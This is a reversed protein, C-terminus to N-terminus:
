TLNLSCFLLVHIFSPCLSLSVSVCHCVFARFLQIFVSAWQGPGKRKIEVCQRESIRLIGQVSVCAKIEGCSIFLFVQIFYHYICINFGVPALWVYLTYKSILVVFSRCICFEQCRREWQMAGHENITKNNTFKNSITARLVQSEEINWFDQQCRTVSSPFIWHNHSSFYKSCGTFVYQLLKDTWIIVRQITFTRKNQMDQM